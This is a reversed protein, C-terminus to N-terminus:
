AKKHDLWVELGQANLEIDMGWLRTIEEDSQRCGHAAARDLLSATLGEVIRQHRDAAEQNSMAVAVSADIAARLDDALTEVQTVEGYHTLFLREPALAVLRDISARAAEPDFQVPSTSPFILPGRDTDLERYALGFVDGTFIGRSEADQVSGHHKAHGPTDHFHLRRGGLELAFGNPTEVLRHAPVPILTGYSERYTQEGYVAIVGAILKTPDVMHRAGRPHVALKANPLQAMLSGAGGAHDLHIHTVIVYDVDGVDLDAAALAALLRPTSHNTGTEVFAARGGSTVLYSAALRPRVHGTDILTIGHSLATTETANM